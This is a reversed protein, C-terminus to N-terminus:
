ADTDSISCAAQCEELSAFDGSTPGWNPYDADNNVPSDSPLCVGWPLKVTGFQSKAMTKCTYRPKPQVDDCHDCTCKGGLPGSYSMRHCKSGNVMSCSLGCHGDGSINVFRVNDVLPVYNNGPEIPIGDGM